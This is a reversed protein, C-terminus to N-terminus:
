LRTVIKALNNITYLDPLHHIQAQNIMNIISRVNGQTIRLTENLVANQQVQEANMAELIEIRSTLAANQAEYEANKTELIDIRSSLNVMMEGM